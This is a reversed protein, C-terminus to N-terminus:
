EWWCEDGYLITGDDLTIRAGYDTLEVFGQKGIHPRSTEPTRKVFGEQFEEEDVDIITCRIPKRQFVPM